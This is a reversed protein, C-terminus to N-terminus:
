DLLKEIQPKLAPLDHIVVNWVLTTDIQFYGHVLIHRTGIIKHWPIEPHQERFEPSIKSAAEGIIQLHHIVWVLLLDDANGDLVGITKIQIKEIALLIDRCRQLDDRM